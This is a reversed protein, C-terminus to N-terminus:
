RFPGRKILIGNRFYTVPVTDAMEAAYVFKAKRGKSEGETKIQIPESKIMLNLEEIKASLSEYTVIHQLEKTSKFKNAESSEDSLGEDFECEHEYEGESESYGVWELGYDRLFQEMDAIRKQLIKNEERLDSIEDMQSSKEYIGQIVKMDENQKTLSNNKVIMEALQKRLVKESDEVDSLRKLIKTTFDTSDRNSQDSNPRSEEVVNFNEPLPALLQSRSSSRSSPKKMISGIMEDYLAKEYSDDFTPKSAVSPMRPKYRPMNKLEDELKKPFNRDQM